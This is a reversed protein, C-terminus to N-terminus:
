DKKPRTLLKIIEPAVQDALKRIGDKYNEMNFTVRIKKFGPTPKEDKKLKEEDYFSKKLDADEDVTKRFIINKAALDFIIVDVEVEFEKSDGSEIYRLVVPRIELILDGKLQSKINKFSRDIKGKPVDLLYPVTKFTVNELTYFEFIKRKDPKKRYKEL